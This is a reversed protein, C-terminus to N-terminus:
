GEHGAHDQHPGLPQRQDHQGDGDGRDAKLDGVLRPIHGAARVPQTADPHIRHQADEGEIEDALGAEPIRQRDHGHDKRCQAQQSARGRPRDNRPM